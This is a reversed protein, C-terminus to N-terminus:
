RPAAAHEDLWAVLPAAARWAGAVRALPEHTGLWEGVPWARGVHLGRLRLLGRRPHDAPYDRPGRSLSDVVGLCLGAAALSGLLEALEAGPPGAVAARYRRLQPGEFRHHGVRVALEAASLTVSRETGGATIVVGGTDTRLPPGGPRYRQNRYPRFIRMPGFEAHLAGALARMPPLVSADYRHRQATWFEHSNDRAVAALFATADTPWGTFTSM